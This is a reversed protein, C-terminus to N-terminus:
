PQEGAYQLTFSAVQQVGYVQDTFVVDGMVGRQSRGRQDRFIVQSKAAALAELAAIDALSDLHLSVPMQGNNEIGFQSFPFSRGDVDTLTPKAGLTRSRGGGDWVFQYSSGAPDAEAHLWVHDLTFGPATAVASIDSNLAVGNETELMSARYYRTVGSRVTYDKVLLGGQATAATVQISDLEKWLVGDDSYEVLMVPAVDTDPYYGSEYGTFVTGPYISLADFYHTETTTTAGAVRLYPVAYVADAPVTVATGTNNTLWTNVVSTVSFGASSTTASATFDAKFWLLGFSVTRAVSSRVSGVLVLRDGPTVPLYNGSGLLAQIDGTGSISRTLNLSAAGHIAQAASVTAVSGALAPDAAWITDDEFSSDGYSLLNTTNEYFGGRTWPPLVTTGATWWLGVNDVYIVNGSAASAVKILVQLSVANAPAVAGTLTVQNWTNATLTVVPGDAESLYSGAADWWIIIVQGTRGTLALPNFYAAAKFSDGPKCPYAGLFTGIYGSAATLTMACSGTGDRVPSTARAITCTSTFYNLVSRDFTSADFDFLNIDPYVSIENHEIVQGVSGFRPAGLHLVSVTFTTTALELAPFDGYVDTRNWAQYVRLNAQYSGNPLNTGVQHLTEASTVLGSDYVTLGTGTDLITVQYKAQPQFDDFFDWIILPAATDNITSSPAPSTITATPPLDYAYRMYAATIVAGFTATAAGYATNLGFLIYQGKQFDAQTMAKGASNVQKNPASYPLVTSTLQVHAGSGPNEKYAVGPTSHDGQYIVFDKYKTNSAQLRARVYPSMTTMRAGTPLTIPQVPVRFYQSATKENVYTADSADSLVAFLTGGTLSYGGPQTVVSAPKPYSILPWTAANPDPGTILTSM